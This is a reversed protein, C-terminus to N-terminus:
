GEFIPIYFKIQVKFPATGRSLSSTDGTPLRRLIQMFSDMMENRQQTLSQEIFLKFPYRTGDYKNEGVMLPRKPTLSSKGELYVLELGLEKYESRM